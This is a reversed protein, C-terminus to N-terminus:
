DRMSIERMGDALLSFGVVLSTIRSRRSCRWTRSSDVHLAYSDKIMGGWDPDPPPLGVGLFGLIGITITPTAWACAPM